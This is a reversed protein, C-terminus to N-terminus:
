TNASINFSRLQAQKEVGVIATVVTDLDSAGVQIVIINKCTSTGTVIYM